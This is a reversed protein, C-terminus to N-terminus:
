ADHSAGRNTPFALLKGAKKATCRAGYRDAMDIAAAYALANSPFPGEMGSSDGGESEHIVLWGREDECLYVEGREVNSM